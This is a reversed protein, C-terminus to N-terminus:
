YNPGDLVVGGDMDLHFIGDPHMLGQKNIFM